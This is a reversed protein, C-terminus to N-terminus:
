SGGRTFWVTEALALGVRSARMRAMMMELL